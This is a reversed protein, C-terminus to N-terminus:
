NNLVKLSETIKQQTTIIEEPLQHLANRADAKSYGLSCLAELAESEERLGGTDDGVIKALKDKLEIVIKAATKKGIGSVNTLYSTDGSSIAKQLTSVPAIEVIGLAVRPGIGSVDLLLTFFSLQEKDTFGFLEMSNERVALHTWFSINEGANYTALATTITFIVYGIGNTNVIISQPGIHQISGEIYGIM